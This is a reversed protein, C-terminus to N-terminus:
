TGVETSSGNQFSTVWESMLSDDFSVDKVITPAIYKEGAVTEGGVVIKGLLGNSLTETGHFLRKWVQHKTWFAKSVPLTPSELLGGLPLLPTPEKHSSSKIDAFAM